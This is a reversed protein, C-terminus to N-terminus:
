CVTRFVYKGASVYKEEVGDYILPQAGRNREYPWANSYGYVSHLLLRWGWNSMRQMHSEEALRRQCDWLSERAKQSSDSITFKMETEFDRVSDLVSM